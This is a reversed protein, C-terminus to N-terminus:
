SAARPAAVDRPAAAGSRTPPMTTAKVLAPAGEKLNEFRASLVPLTPPLDTKLEVLGAEEDRRGVVVMRKVLKGDAITWVYTQGAETRVATSPLVAVPASAGLAIRGTAFMGSRLASDANPLSVFVLIARTGPETAPNIREIRGAFRREGYGDVALDVPMGVKLEPVDIAPVVAQLELDRLDVITILPADFGVKEGPQVHRKAVVGALPAAVAADRRAIEAIRLQAEASKVNGEAVKYGSESSDFANQSIFKENLLKTNMGRTKDALALQARSSELAGARDAVRADLDATDFYALVQGAKVQEGERVNVQKVEGSVRAKVVAQRVPQLTGSVPLWRGMPRAQVHALDGPAFELTVPLEKGGPGDGGKKAARLAVAGGLGGAILLSILAIILRRRTMGFRM